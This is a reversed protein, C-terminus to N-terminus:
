KRVARRRAPEGIVIDFTDTYSIGAVDTATVSVRYTGPLRFSHQVTAGTATGRDGFNWRYTYPGPAGGETTTSFTVGQLPRAWRPGAIQTVLPCFRALYTNAHADNPREVAQVYASGTWIFRYPSFARARVPDAVAFLSNSILGGEPTFRHLRYQPPEVLFGRTADIYALALEGDRAVLAVPAVDIGTGTLLLADPRVIQGSTDVVLWRIATRGDSLQFSRALVFQNDFSGVVLDGGASWVDHVSAAGSLDVRAYVLRDTNLPKYFLGTIGSATVAVRLTARTGALVPLEVDRRVRGDREVFTVYTGRRGSTVTRGIVYANAVSNWVVDVEDTGSLRREPMVGVPTGVLTGDAAVRQLLLNDNAVYFLGFESGTWVLAVVGRQSAGAVHAPSSRQGADESFTSIWVAREAGETWSVALVDGNWAIPGRDLRPSASWSSIVATSSICQARATAAGLTCVLVAVAITQSRTM